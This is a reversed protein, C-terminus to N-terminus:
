GQESCPVRDPIRREPYRGCIQRRYYVDPHHDKRFNYWVDEPVDVYQLVQGGKRLRVELLACQPNYGIGEIVGSYVSIYYLAKDQTLVQMNKEWDRLRQIKM